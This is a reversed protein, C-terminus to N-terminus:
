GLIQTNCIYNRKKSSQLLPARHQNQHVLVHLVNNYLHLTAFHLSTYNPSTNYLTAFHLSTYNPSTHHLTIFHLQTFHLPIYNHHHHDLPPTPLPLILFNGFNQVGKWTSSWLQLFFMISKSCGNFHLKACLYLVSIGGKIVQQYCYRGRM